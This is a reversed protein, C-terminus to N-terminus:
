DQKWGLYLIAKGIEQQIKTKSISEFNTTDWHAEMGTRDMERNGKHEKLNHLSRTSLFFNPIGYPVNFEKNYLM